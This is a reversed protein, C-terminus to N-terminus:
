ANGTLRALNSSFYPDSTEILPEDLLEVGERCNLGAVLLAMAVRHDGRSYVRGGRLPEGGSGDITWGDPQLTVRGGIANLGEAMAELRNSEKIRLEGAGRVTTRGGAFAAVVALAPLEDIVFPADEPPVDIAQPVGGGM